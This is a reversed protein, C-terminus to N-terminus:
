RNMFSSKVIIGPKKPQPKATDDNESKMWVLGARIAAAYAYVEIDLAENRERVKVWEMIPFGDKIRTEIKEATV